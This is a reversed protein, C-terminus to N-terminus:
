FKLGISLDINIKTDEGSKQGQEDIAEKITEPLNIDTRINLQEKEKKYLELM